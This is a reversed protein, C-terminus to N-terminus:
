RDVLEERNQKGRGQKGGAGGGGWFFSFFFLYVVPRLSLCFSFKWSSWWVVMTTRPSLLPKFKEVFSTAYSCICCAFLAVELLGPSFSKAVSSTSPIRWKGSPCTLNNQTLMNSFSQIVCSSFPILNNNLKM